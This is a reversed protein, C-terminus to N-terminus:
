KMDILIECWRNRCLFQNHDDNKNFVLVQGSTGRMWKHDLKNWILWFLETRILTHSIVYHLTPAALFILSIKNM